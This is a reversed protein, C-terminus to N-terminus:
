CLQDSYQEEMELGYKAILLAEARGDLLRGRETEYEVEPFLQQALAVSELKDRSLNFRKKWVAPRVFKIQVGAMEIAAILKGFGVGYTFVGVVGQSPMAQAQEIYAVDVDFEKIFKMIRPASISNEFHPMDIVLHKKDGFIIAIAGNKGPDAGLITKM